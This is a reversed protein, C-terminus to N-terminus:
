ALAAVSAVLAATAREDYDPLSADCFLHASGEYLILEGRDAGAILERAADLDGSETFMEDGSMGHVQVPVGAPWTPSYEEVPLAASILVAGRAGPATQALRQAPVAGLSIGIYIADGFAAAADVGRQELVGFGISKAHAIGDDLADFVQGDYLDPLHVDHGAETFRAGLARVGETLGQAHHFLIVTAM